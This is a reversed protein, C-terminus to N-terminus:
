ESHSALFGIGTHRRVFPVILNVPRRERVTIEAEITTGPTVALDPGRRSTWRFGSPTSSDRALSVRAAYPAGQSSYNRVLADNQLVALMGDRTVPFDSIATVTGIVTGHEEKRAIAPEVRVTMGPRIRKGDATPVYLIAEVQQDATAITLMSQGAVVADGAFSRIETVRGAVPAVIQSARQLQSTLESVRRAAAAVRQDAQNLERGRRSKLELTAAELELIRIQAASIEQRVQDYDSRVQELRDRSIVGSAALGQQKSLTDALYSARQEAAEIVQRQFAVQERANRDRAEIEDSFSTALIDREQESEELSEQAGELTEQMAAQQLSAIQQGADVQADVQVLLSEIRGAAPSSVDVIRGGAGVLIGNGTVQDPITGFFAWGLIALLLLIVTWLAVWGQADTIVVLHDLQEPSSLRDLAAQRFIQRGAM